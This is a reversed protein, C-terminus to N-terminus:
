VLILGKLSGSFSAQMALLRNSSYSSHVRLGVIGGAGGRVRLKEVDGEDLLM